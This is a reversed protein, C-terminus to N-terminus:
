ARKTKSYVLIHVFDVHRTSVQRGLAYYIESYRIFKVHFLPSIEDLHNDQDFKGHTHDLQSNYSSNDVADFTYKLTM